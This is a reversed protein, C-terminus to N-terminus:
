IKTRSSEWYDLPLSLPNLMRNVGVCFASIGVWTREWFALLFIIVVKHFYDSWCRLPLPLFFFLALSFQKAFEMHRLAGLNLYWQSESCCSSAPTSLPSTALAKWLCSHGGVACSGQCYKLSCCAMDVARHRQKYGEELFRSALDCIVSSNPRRNLRCHQEM